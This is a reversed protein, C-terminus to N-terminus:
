DSERPPVRKRRTSGRLTMLVETSSIEGLPQRLADLEYMTARGNTQMVTMVLASPWRALLASVLTMDETATLGIIVVDPCVPPGVFVDEISRDNCVLEYQSDQRIEYELVERLLQPVELLLVRAPLTM